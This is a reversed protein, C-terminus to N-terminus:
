IPKVKVKTSQSFFLQRFFDKVWKGIENLQNAHHQELLQRVGYLHDRDQQRHVPQAREQHHHQPKQYARNNSHQHHVLDGLEIM